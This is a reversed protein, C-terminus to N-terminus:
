GSADEAKLTVLWDVLAKLEEDSGKFERQHKEGELTEEQRLWGAMWAADHHNGVDSLDPGKTKESKSRREVGLSEISHCLNCKHATFVEPVASSAETSEEVALTAPSAALFVFLVAVVALLPWTRRM